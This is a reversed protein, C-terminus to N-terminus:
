AGADARVRSYLVLDHWEDHRFQAGRLVGERTFGARELAKQEVDNEVDTSAEVRNVASTAFLYDALLRQAASGYGRGRGEPLLAIGIQFARSAENPGHQVVRWGVTGMPKGGVDVVLLGRDAGTLVGVLVAQQLSAATAPQGFDNYRGEQEPDGHADLRAVDSEAIARLKVVPGKVM